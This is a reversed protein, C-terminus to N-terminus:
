TINFYASQLNHRRLIGADRRARQADRQRVVEHTGSSTGGEQQLADGQGVNQNEFPQNRDVAAQHPPQSRIVAFHDLNAMTKRSPLM